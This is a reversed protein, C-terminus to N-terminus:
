ILTYICTIKAQLMEGSDYSVFVRALKFIHLDATYHLFVVEIADTFCVFEECIFMLAPSYVAKLLGVM